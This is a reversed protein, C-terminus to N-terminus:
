YDSLRFALPVQINLQSRGLAPPLPPFRGVKHLAEAAAGDLVEHGSSRAIAYGAIEGGQGITFKLVVVGERHQRRATWPYTKQQELRRRVEGLYSKLANGSGSGAGPNSGPGSGTGLGSGPGQGRGAGQGTGAGQGRGSAAGRVAVAVPASRVPRPAAPRPLALAPPPPIEPPRRVARVRRPKPKKTVPKPKPPPPQPKSQPKVASVQSAGGGAHGSGATLCITAVEVVRRPPPLERSWLLALGLLLGHLAASALIVATWSKWGEASAWVQM